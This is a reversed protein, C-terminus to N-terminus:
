TILRFRSYKDSLNHLSPVWIIVPDKYIHCILCNLNFDDRLDPPIKGRTFLCVAARNDNLILDRPYLLHSILIGIYENSLINSERKFLGVRYDRESFIEIEHPTADCWM